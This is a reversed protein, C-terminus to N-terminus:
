TLMSSHRPHNTPMGRPIFNKIFYFFTSNKTCVTVTSMCIFLLVMPTFGLLREHRL